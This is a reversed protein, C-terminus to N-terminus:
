QIKRFILKEIEVINFNHKKSLAEAALHKGSFELGMLCFIYEANIRQAENSGNQSKTNKFKNEYLQRLINGLTYNNTV